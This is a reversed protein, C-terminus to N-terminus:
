QLVGADLQRFAAAAEQLQEYTEQIENTSDEPLEVVPEPKGGCASFLLALCIASLTMWKKNM